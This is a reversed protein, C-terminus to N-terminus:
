CISVSLLLMNFYAMKFKVPSPLLSKYSSYSSVLSAISDASSALCRFSFSLM